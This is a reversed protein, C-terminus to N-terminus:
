PEPVEVAKCDCDGWAYYMGTLYVKTSSTNIIRIYYDSQPFIFEIASSTYNGSLPEGWDAGDKSLYVQLNDRAANAPHYSVILNYLNPVPRDSVMESTSNPMMLCITNTVGIKVTGFKASGSCQYTLLSTAGTQDSNSIILTGAAPMTQFTHTVNGAEVSYSVASLALFTLVTRYWKLRKM